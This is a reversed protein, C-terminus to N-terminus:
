DKALKITLGANNGTGAAVVGINPGDVLQTTDNQGGVVNLTQGLDRHVTGTNGAFNMGKATLNNIVETKAGETINKVDGINAANTLTNYTPQGNATGDSGSALKTIQDNGMDIGSTSITPGNTIALGGDTLTISQSGNAVKVGSNNVATNGTTLSGNSGLNVDKVLDIQIKTPDSTLSTKINKTTTATGTAGGAINLTQTALNVKGKGTNSATKVDATTNLTVAKLQAVNVADTDNTGAAVNVIQRTASDNGVSVAAYTSNWTRDTLTSQANTSPDYGKKGNTVNAVSRDGLAVGGAVTASADSGIVVAKSANGTATAQRGIAISDSLADGVTAQRGIAIANDAGGGTSSTSGIAISYTGKTVANIAISDRQETTAGVGIATSRQDNATAGQGIALTNGSLAKAKDGIAVSSVGTVEAEAGIAVSNQTAVRNKYGIAVNKFVQGQNTANQGEIVNGTGIVTNFVNTDKNINNIDKTYGNVTNGLGVVVSNLATVTTDTKVDNETYSGGVVVSDDAKAGVIIDDGVVISNESAASANAGILLNNNPDRKMVTDAALVSGTLLSAVFFTAFTARLVGACTSAAKGERKAIESVVVYCGKTKSWIVKYIKNM